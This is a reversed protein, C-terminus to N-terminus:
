NRIDIAATIGFVSLSKTVDNIGIKSNHFVNSVWETFEIESSETEIQRFSINQYNQTKM